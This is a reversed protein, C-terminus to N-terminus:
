DRFVEPKDGVVLGVFLPSGVVDVSIGSVEPDELFDASGSDIWAYVAGGTVGLGEAVAEATLGAAHATDTLRAALPAKEKQKKAM